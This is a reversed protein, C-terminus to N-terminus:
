YEQVVELNKAIKLDHLTKKQADTLKDSTCLIFLTDKYGSYLPSGYLSESIGRELLGNSRLVYHFGLNFNGTRLAQRNLENMSLKELVPKFVLTIGRTKEREKFKIM